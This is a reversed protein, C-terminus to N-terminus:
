HPDNMNCFGGTCDINSHDKNNRNQFSKYAFFAILIVVIAIGIYIYMTYDNNSTIEEPINLSFTSDTIDISDM